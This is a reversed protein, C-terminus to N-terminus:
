YGYNQVLNRNVLMESERIPWFYDRLTFTQNFLVRRRYYYEDAKQLYDWGTIPNNLEEHAIRWRRLDWFRHGEFALEILRERRIIDRLGEQTKYRDPFRAYNDYSEGVSPIGARQRVKNLWTYPSDPNATGYADGIAGYAENLAEAYLLYLDALRIVPWPYSVVTFGNSGSTTPAQSQYNVLKKPWYGTVNTRATTPPVQLQEAKCQIFYQNEDNLAGQGLWVGGDFALSGYFRPERDFHLKITRYGTQLYYKESAVATRLNYRGAYDYTVDQDIPLGHNTYYMEAIKIPPSYRGFTSTNQLTGPYQSMMIGYPAADQQPTGGTSQTNAWIVEGNWKVSVANRISILTKTSDSPDIFGISSMGAGYTYLKFYQDCLTIAEACAAAAKLWKSRDPTANFLKVGRNDAIDNYDPTEGNFLPSAGTVLILAKLSLCIPKTIRGLETAELDIKEPLFPAAEDLLQVMYDICDNVPERYSKVEDVGASIPLNEKMLPIPGYMRFLYFHYYAKLFKVEASWRAKEGVDMDPVRSINELFINCDRIGKFPNCNGVTGNWFDLFPTTVNQLGRAISTSGNAVTTIYPYLFWLEDGCAIAPDATLSGHTPLYRYCTFLYREAAVRMNFNEEVTPINDPVVDLYDCSGLIAFPLLLSLIVSCTHTSYKETKM